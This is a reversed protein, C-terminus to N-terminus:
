SESNICVLGFGNYLMESLDPNLQFCSFLPINLLIQKPDKPLDEEGRWNDEKGQYEKVNGMQSRKVESLM